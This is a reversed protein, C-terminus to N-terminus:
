GVDGKWAYVRANTPTLSETILDKEKLGHVAMRLENSNVNRSLLRALKTHGITKHRKIAERVKAEKETSRDQLSYDVLDPLNGAVSIVLKVATSVHPQRIVPGRGDALCLLMSLRAVLERERRWWPRMTEDAPEPRNQVWQRVYANAKETMHMEGRLMTLATVRAQIHAVVEDYDDPYNIDDWVRAVRIGIKHEEPYVTVIRAFLGSEVTDPTMAKLLWKKTSGIVWNICCNRITTIGHTRTGDSFEGAGGYLETMIQMLNDSHEGKRVYATIEPMCLFVSSNALIRQGSHPDVTPKGLADLLYESTTRLRAYNIIPINKVFGEMKNLAFGKGSGSDGILFTYLNPYIPWEKVRYFYVRDSVAAAIMALCAWLHYAVPIDSNAGCTHLYLQVLNTTKKLIPETM